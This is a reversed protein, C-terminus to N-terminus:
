LGGGRPLPMGGLLPAVQEFQITKQSFLNVLTPMLATALEDDLELESCVALADTVYDRIQERTHHELEVRRM